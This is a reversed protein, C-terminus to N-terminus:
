WNHVAPTPRFGKDVLTDVLLKQKETLKKLETQLETGM